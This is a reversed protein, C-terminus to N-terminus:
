QGDSMGGYVQGKLCRGGARDQQKSPSVNFREREKHRSVVPHEPRSSSPRVSIKRDAPATRSVNLTSPQKPSVSEHSNLRERHGLRWDSSAEDHGRIVSMASLSRGSLHGRRVARCRRRQGKTRTGVNPKAVMRWRSSSASAGRRPIVLMGHKTRLVQSMTHERM